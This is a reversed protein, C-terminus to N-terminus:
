GDERIMMEWNRIFGWREGMSILADDNHGVRVSLDFFGRERLKGTASEVMQRALGRHRYRSNVELIAIFPLLEGTLPEQTPVSLFIGIREDTGKPHATLVLGAPSEYARDLLRKGLGPEIQTDRFEESAQVGLRELDEELWSSSERDTHIRLSIDM